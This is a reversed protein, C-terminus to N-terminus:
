LRLSPCPRVQHIKPDNHAPLLHSPPSLGALIMRKRSTSFDFVCLWVIFSSVPPSFLRQILKSQPPGIYHAHASLIRFPPGNARATRLRHTRRPAPSAWALIVSPVGSFSLRAPLWDQGTNLCVSSALPLLLLAGGLCLSIEFSYGLCITM